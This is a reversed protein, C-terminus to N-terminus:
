AEDTALKRECDPTPLQYSSANGSPGRETERAIRVVEELTLSITSAPRGTDIRSGDGEEDGM